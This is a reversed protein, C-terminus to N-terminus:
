KAVIDLLFIISLSILVSEDKFIDTAHLEEIWLHMFLHQLMWINM